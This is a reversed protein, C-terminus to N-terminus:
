SLGKLCTLSVTVLTPGTIGGTGGATVVALSVGKDFPLGKGPNCPFPTEVSAPVEFVYDPVSTGITPNLDDYLKVYNLSGDANNVHINMVRCPGVMLDLYASGDDVPIDIITYGPMETQKITAAM